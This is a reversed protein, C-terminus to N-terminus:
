KGAGTWKGNGEDLYRVGNLETFNLYQDWTGGAVTGHAERHELQVTQLPPGSGVLAESLVRGDLPQAPKVNMLWLLTPVVDINGSPLPDVVGSRFDPGAAACTNHLDTPSLTVHMGCGASYEHYGDNFVEIHPHENTAPLRQWRTSVIVDPATAGGVHVEADDPHAGLVLLDNYIGGSYLFEIGYLPNFAALIAPHHGIQWGGLGAIVVFWVLLVPGFVGGIGSTGKFQIAFLATLLGITVPVVIEALAPTAVQLGEVASVVSIAPTIMGDGFLLGAGLMLAWLLPRMGRKKHEHLLGYLAFLGGEGDNQARLVFIAYKIAVIVTITWIM